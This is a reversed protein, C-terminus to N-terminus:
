ILRTHGFYECWLLGTQHSNAMVKEGSRDPSVWISGGCWVPRTEILCWRRVLGTQHHGVLSWGIGEFFTMEQNIFTLFFVSDCYTLVNRVLFHYPTLLSPKHPKHPRRSQSPVPYINVYCSFHWRFVVLGDCSLLLLSFLSMWLFILFSQLVIQLM